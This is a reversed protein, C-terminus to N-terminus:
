VINEHPISLPDRRAANRRKQPFVGAGLTHWDFGAMLYPFGKGAIQVRGADRQVAYPLQQSVAAQGGRQPINVIWQRLILRVLQKHICQLRSDLATKLSAPM